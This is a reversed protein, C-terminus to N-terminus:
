DRPWPMSQTLSTTTTTSSQDSTSTYLFAPPQLRSLSTSATLTSNLLQVITAMSPRKSVDEQVCSLGMNVCKIVEENSCTDRLTPDMLELTNGELWCKWAQFNIACENM